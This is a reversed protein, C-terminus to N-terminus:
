RPRMGDLINTEASAGSWRIFAAIEGRQFWARFPSKVLWRELTSMEAM